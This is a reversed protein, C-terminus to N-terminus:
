RAGGAHWTGDARLVCACPPAGLEAEPTGSMRAVSLCGEEPEEPPAPPAYSRWTTRSGCRSRREQADM